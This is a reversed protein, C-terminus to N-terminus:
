FLDFNYGVGVLLGADTDGSDFGVNVRTTVTFNQGVPVDVGASLLPDIEGHLWIGGGIFPTAMIAGQSDRLPLEGTLAFLSATEDGFVTSNRLSLYDIIRTRSVIAFGGDGLASEDGSLGINGGIGLYSRKEEPQDRTDVQAFAPLGSLLSVGGLVSAMGWVAAVRQIRVM